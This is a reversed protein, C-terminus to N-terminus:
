LSVCVSDSPESNGDENQAVIYFCVHSGAPVKQGLQSLQVEAAVPIDESEKRSLTSVLKGGSAAKLSGTFYVKYSQVTESPKDWSFQLSGQAAEQSDDTSNKTQSTPKMLDESLVTLPQSPSCSLTVFSFILIVKLPVLKM